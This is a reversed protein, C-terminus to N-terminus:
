GHARVIAVAFPSLALVAITFRLLLYAFPEMSDLANGVLPFTVGFLLAAVVLAGEAAFRSGFRPM